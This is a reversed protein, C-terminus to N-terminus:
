KKPQVAPNKPPPAGTKTPVGGPRNSPISEPLPEMKMGFPSQMDSTVTNYLLSKRALMTRGSGPPDDKIYIHVDEKPNKMEMLVTNRQMDITCRDCLIIHTATKIVARGICEMTKLSGSVM